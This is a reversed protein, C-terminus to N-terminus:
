DDKYHCPFSIFSWIFFLLFRSFLVSFILLPSETMANFYELRLSTFLVNFIQSLMMEKWILVLFWVCLFIFISFIVYGIVLVILGFVRHNSDAIMWIMRWFYPYLVSFFLSRFMNKWYSLFWVLRVCFFLLLPFGFLLSFSRIRGLLHSFCDFRSGPSEFGRDLRFPRLAERAQFCSIARKSVASRRLREASLNM